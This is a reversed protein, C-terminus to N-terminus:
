VDGPNALKHKDQLRWTHCRGRLICNVVDPVDSLVTSCFRLSRSKRKKKPPEGDAAGDAKQENEKGPISGWRAAGRKRVFPQVAPLTPLVGANSLLLITQRRAGHRPNVAHTLESLRM